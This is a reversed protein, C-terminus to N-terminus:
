TTDLQKDFTRRQEAKRRLDELIVPIFVEALTKDGVFERGVIVTVPTRQRPKRPQKEIATNM